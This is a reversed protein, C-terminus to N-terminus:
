FHLSSISDLLDYPKLGYYTLYLPTLTVEFALSGLILDKHYSPVRSLDEKELIERLYSHAELHVEPPSIRVRQKYLNVIFRRINIGIRVAARVIDENKVEEPSGRIHSPRLLLAQATPILMKEQSGRIRRGLIEMVSISPSILFNLSCLVDVLMVPYRYTRRKFMEPEYKQDWLTEKALVINEEISRKLFDSLVLLDRGYHSLNLAAVDLAWRALKINEVIKEDVNFGLEGLKHYKSLMIVSLEEMFRFPDSKSAILPITFTIYHHPALPIYDYDEYLRRVAEFVKKRLESAKNKSRVRFIYKLDEARVEM